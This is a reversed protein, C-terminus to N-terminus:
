YEFGPEMIIPQSMNIGLYDSGPEAMVFPQEEEASACFGGCASVFRAIENLSQLRHSLEAAQARIVTNEAEVNLYHQVTANFRTLIQSNEKRLEAVQAMLDDLRKQKRLRSRRASERNSIMRNRRRQDLLLLQLNEESGSNQFGSSISSIGSSSDM